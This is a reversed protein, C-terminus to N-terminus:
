FVVSIDNRGTDKMSITWEGLSPVTLRTLTKVALWAQEFFQVVFDGKATRRALEVCCEKFPSTAEPNRAQLTSEIRRAFDSPSM